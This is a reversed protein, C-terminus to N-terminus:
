NRIKRKKNLKVKPQEEYRVMAQLYSIQMLHPADHVVLGGQPCWGENIRKRVGQELASWNSYQMIEYDIVKM